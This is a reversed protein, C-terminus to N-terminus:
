EEILELETQRPLFFVTNDELRKMAKYGFTLSGLEGLLTGPQLTAVKEKDVLQCHPIPKIGYCITENVLRFKQGKTYTDLLVIPGNLVNVEADAPVLVDEGSELSIRRFEVIEGATGESGVQSPSPAQNAPMDSILSVKAGKPVSGAKVHM